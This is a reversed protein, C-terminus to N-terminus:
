KLKEKLWRESKIQCIQCSCNTINLKTDLCIEDEFIEEATKTIALNIADIFNPSVEGGRDLTAEKLVEDLIKERTM